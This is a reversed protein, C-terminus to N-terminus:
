TIRLLSDTILLSHTLLLYYTTLLLYYTTLLILYWDFHPAYYTFILWYYTAFLVSLVGPVQCALSSLAAALARGLLPLWCAGRSTSDVPM